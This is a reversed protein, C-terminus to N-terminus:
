HSVRPRHRRHSAASAGGAALLLIAAAGGAGIAASGVDFGGDITRTVVPNDYDAPTAGEGPGLNHQPQAGAAPAAIAAITLAGALSRTLRHHRTPMVSELVSHIHM